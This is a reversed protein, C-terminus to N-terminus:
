VDDKVNNLLDIDADISDDQNVNGAKYMGLEFLAPLM